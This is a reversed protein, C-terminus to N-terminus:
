LAAPKEQVAPHWADAMLVACRSDAFLYVQVRLRFTQMRSFIVRIATSRLSEARSAAARAASAAAALPKPSISRPCHRLIPSFHCIRSAYYNKTPMSYPTLNLLLLLLLLQPPPPLVISSDLLYKTTSHTM